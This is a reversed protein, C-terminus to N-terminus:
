CTERLVHTCYCKEAVEIMSGVVTNSVCSTILIKLVGGLCVLRTIMFCLKYCPVSSTVQVRCDILSCCIMLSLFTDIIFCYDYGLNDFRRPKLNSVVWEQM